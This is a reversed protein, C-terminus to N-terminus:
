KWCFFVHKDFWSFYIYINIDLLFTNAEYSDCIHGYGRMNALVIVCDVKVGTQERSPGGTTEKWTNRTMQDGMDSEETVTKTLHVSIEIQQKRREASDIQCIVGAQKWKLFPHGRQPSANRYFVYIFLFNRNFELSNCERKQSGDTNLMEWPRHTWVM